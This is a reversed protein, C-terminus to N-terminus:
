VQAHEFTPNPRPQPHMELFRTFSVLMAFAVVHYGASELFRRWPLGRKVFVDPWFPAPDATLELPPLRRPYVLDGLNAFFVRPWSPLEVLLRPAPLAERGSAAPDSAAQDQLLAETM